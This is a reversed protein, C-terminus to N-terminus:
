PGPVLGPILPRGSVRVSVTERDSTERLAVERGQLKVALPRLEFEAPARDRQRVVREVRLRERAGAVVRGHDATVRVVPVLLQPPIGAAM